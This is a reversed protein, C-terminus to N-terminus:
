VGLALLRWNSREGHVTFWELQHRAGRRQKAYLYSFVTEHHRDFLLASFRPSCVALVSRCLSSLRCWFPLYVCVSGRSQTGCCRRHRSHNRLLRAPMNVVQSGSYVARSDIYSHFLRSYATDGMQKPYNRDVDSAVLLATLLPLLFQPRNNNTFSRSWLHSPTVCLPSIGAQQRFPWWRHKLVGRTSQHLTNLSSLWAKLRVGPPSRLQEVICAGFRPSDKRTTMVPLSWVLYAPIWWGVVDSILCFGLLTQVAHALLVPRTKCVNTNNKQYKSKEKVVFSELSPRSITYFYEFRFWLPWFTKPIDKIEALNILLTSNGAVVVASSARSSGHGPHGPVKVSSFYAEREGLAWGFFCGSIM